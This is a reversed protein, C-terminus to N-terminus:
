QKLPPLGVGVIVNQISPEPQSGNYTFTQLQSADMADYALDKQTYQAPLMYTVVLNKVSDSELLWRVIPFFFKEPLTSVDLIVNKATNRHLWGEVLSNLRKLPEFISFEHLERHATPVEAEWCARNADRRLKSEESFKSPQDIIELFATHVLKFSVKQHRLASLCRDQTSITGVLFWEEQKLSQMGLLWQPKGWPRLSGNIM